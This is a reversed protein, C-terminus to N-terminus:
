QRDSYREGEARYIQRGQPVVQVVETNLHVEVSLKKM